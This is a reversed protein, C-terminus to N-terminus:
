QGARQLRRVAPVIDRRILTAGQGRAASEPTRRSTLAVVLDLAPDVHIWQGGYGSAMISGAGLWWLYGYATGLPAGGASHRQALARMYGRPVLTRGQWQGEGLVLEGLRAMAPTTLSLALLATLLSGALGYRLAM